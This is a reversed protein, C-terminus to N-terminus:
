VMIMNNINKYMKVKSIYKLAIKNVLASAIVCDDHKGTEAEIKGNNDVLTLCEALTEKFNIKYIGQEVAEIFSDVLIPRSLVTTRHGINEDTDLWMNPYRHTERLKLIVAHGHNNREVILQPWRNSISYMQGMKNIIDAFDSPNAQDHYQAVDEMDEICFCVCVSYDRKVGEAPDAGM